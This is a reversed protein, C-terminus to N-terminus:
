IYHKKNTPWLKDKKRNLKFLLTGLLVMAVIEILRAILFQADWFGLSSVESLITGDKHVETLWIKWFYFRNYSFDIALGLYFISTFLLLNRM